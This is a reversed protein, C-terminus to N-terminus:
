DYDKIMSPFHHAQYVFPSVFEKLSPFSLDRSSLLPSKTPWDINVSNWLIGSDHKPSYVTSVKYVLTAKDSTVCFGHALGKPIYLYNGLDANLTVKATKGYTPSGVRLDLLVDFVEGQVCYVLKIHEVPPNQFHLGRLVGLHSNSYYEEVFDTNLGLKIFTNKHFIKIFRGRVDSLINPQIQFCGSIGTHKLEFM